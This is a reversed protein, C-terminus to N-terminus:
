KPLSALGAKAKQEISSEYEHNKYNMAQQYYMKAMPYNKMGEYIYGLQLASNPAFYYSNNKSLQIEKKYYDIADNLQGMKHYLRAIRYYYELKDKYSSMENMSTAKLIAQAETFLGGDTYMRIKTLTKNPLENAKVLKDAYKDAEYIAQGVSNIKNWYTMATADQNMLWHSLFLKFYSDKLLNKGKNKEIFELFYMRSQEYKGTLILAEGHVYEIFPFNVFAKGTPHKEVISLAERANGQKLLISTTIYNWLLNDPYYSLFNKLSAVDAEEHLVYQNCLALYLNAEHSFIIRAQIVEKLYNKGIQVDGKFGLTNTIWTYQSPISGLIMNLMGLSKKTPIFSPYLKLNENLLNLAKKADVTASLEDKFKMKVMAWQLYMEALCYRYYPNNTPLSKINTEYQSELNKNQQYLTADESVFLETTTALSQLYFAIGNKGNEKVYSSLISDGSSIKLKIIQYYAKQLDPAFTYQAQSPLAACIFFLFPHIIFCVRKFNIYTVLKM